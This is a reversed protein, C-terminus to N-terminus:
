YSQANNNLVHCVIQVFHETCENIIFHGSEFLYQHVAGQTYKAWEDLHQATTFTDNKGFLLHLNSTLTGNPVMVYHESAVADARLCQTLESLEARAVKQTPQGFSFLKNLFKDDDKEDSIKTEPVVNPSRSAVVILNDVAVGKLQLQRATEYALLGGMSHGVFTTPIDGFNVLEQSLSEAMEAISSMPPESKRNGHAPLHVSFVEVHSGIRRVWPKVDYPSGGACHFFVLRQRPTKVPRCKLLWLEDLFRALEYKASETTLQGNTELLTVLSSLTTNSYVQPSTLEIGTVKKIESVIQIIALSDGGSNLFDEEVGGEFTPIAQRVIAAVANMTTSHEESDCDKTTLEIYEKLKAEDVKGSLTLPIEREHIVKSPWMYYPLKDKILSLLSEPVIHLEPQTTYFLYLTGKDHIVSCQEVLHISSATNEIQLLEVRHGNINVQRDNRGYIDINGDNRFRCVDGTNYANVSEGWPLDVNVFSQKTVKDLNLYGQAVSPGAIFLLGPMGLPVLMHQEDLIFARVNPLPRGISPNIEENDQCRYTTVAVTTETPGYGNIVEIGARTFALTVANSFKEGGLSLLRLSRLQSLHQKLYDLLVPPIEAVTVGKQLMFTAIKQPDAKYEDPLIALKSGNFLSCFMDFVSVDFALSAFQLVTDHETIRYDKSIGAVFNALAGHSIKVGKPNGTTGSTYIIYALESPRYLLDPINFNCGSVTEVEQVLLSPTSPRVTWEILDTILLKAQSDGLIYVLQSEPSKIDVPIYTAGLSLIAIIAAVAEPSRQLYLCVRDGRRIGLRELKLYFQKVKEHFVDHSLTEKHNMICTREHGAAIIALIQPLISPMNIPLSEGFSFSHLTDLEEGTPLFVAADDVNERRTFARACANVKGMIGTVLKEHYVNPNYGINVKIREKCEAIQLVVDCNDIHEHSNYSFGFNSAAEHDDVERLCSPEVYLPLRGALPIAKDTFAQEQSLNEPLNVALTVQTDLLQARLGFSDAASYRALVLMYSLVIQSVVSESRDFIFESKTELWAFPKDEYFDPPVLWNKVEVQSSPTKADILNIIKQRQTFPLKTVRDYIENMRTEM